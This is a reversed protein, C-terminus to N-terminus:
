NERKEKVISQKNNSEIQINWRLVEASTTHWHLCTCFRLSFSSRMSLFPFRSVNVENLWSLWSVSKAFEFLTSPPCLVPPLELLWCCGLNHVSIMLEYWQITRKSTRNFSYLARTCVHLCEYKIRISLKCRSFRVCLLCWMASWFGLSVNDWWYFILRIFYIHIVCLSPYGFVIEAGIFRDYVGIKFLNWIQRFIFCIVQM